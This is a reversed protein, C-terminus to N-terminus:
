ATVKAVSIACEHSLGGGLEYCTRCLGAERRDAHEQCLYGDKVHEHVCIRRYLGASTQGCPGLLIGCFENVAQCAATGGAATDPGGPGTITSM